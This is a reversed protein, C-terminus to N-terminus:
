FSVNLGAVFTKPEPYGGASVEPSYSLFDTMTWLNTASVYVRLNNAGIYKLLNKDVNYGLALNRLRVYSADQYSLSSFYSITADRPRPNTNSPNELSWYDVKIGNLKGHLDGGSNADYLYANSRIAGQVTYFDFSFDIGKWKLTSGISGTWKPARNIIIRDDPTILGDGDV